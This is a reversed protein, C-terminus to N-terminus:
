GDELLRWFSEDLTADIWNGGGYRVLDDAWRKLPHGVNRGCKHEPIWTLLKRAWREDDTRAARGAFRWKKKKYM